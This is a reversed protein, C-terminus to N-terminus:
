PMPGRRKALEVFRQAIIQTFLEAGVTNIHEVDRRHEPAFLAAYQRVDSFDLVTLEREREVTPFFHQETPTPPVILVPTAGSKGVAALLRELALQSVPDGREKGSPKALRETYLKEYKEAMAGSMQQLDPDGPMWGDGKEGMSKGSRSKEGPPRLWREMVETGRGLNIARTLGYRAHGLIQGAAANWIGCRAGFTAAPDKALASQNEIAQGWLRRVILMLRAADHWYGFRSTGERDLATELRSLEVFVWRLRPHPRRLIEELVYSDEPSVMAPIGANFSKVPVGNEGAIRDFISPMIQSQVRSSGLFLVDYEDGHRALHEMKRWVMSVDPFPLCRGLWACSAVFTALFIAGLLAVQGAIQCPTFYPATVTGGDPNTVRVDYFHGM